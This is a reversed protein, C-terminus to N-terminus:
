RRYRYRKFNFHLHLVGRSFICRFGKRDQTDWEKNIIKFCLDEYPPGAIFKITLFQPDETQILKYEPTVHRQVLEPYFINFKYGMIIKPPPNDTDYHTQNYKNWDHGLKVKNFYQPKKLTRDSRNLDATLHQELEFLQEEDEKNENERQYQLFYQIYSDVGDSERNEKPRYVWQENQKIKDKQLTLKDKAKKCLEAFVSERKAQIQALEEEQTLVM